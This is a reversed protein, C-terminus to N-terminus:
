NCAQRRSSMNQASPTQKECRTVEGREKEEKKKEKERLEFQQQLISCESATLVNLM